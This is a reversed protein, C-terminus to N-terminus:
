FPFQESITHSFKEHKDRRIIECSSDHHARSFQTSVILNNYSQKSLPLKRGIKEDHTSPMFSIILRSAAQKFHYEANWNLDTNLM